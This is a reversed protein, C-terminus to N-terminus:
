EAPMAQITIQLLLQFCKLQRGMGRPRRKDLIVKGGREQIHVNPIIFTKKM